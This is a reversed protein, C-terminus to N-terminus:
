YCLPYILVARPTINLTSLAIYWELKRQTMAIVHESREAFFVIVHSFLVPLLGCTKM